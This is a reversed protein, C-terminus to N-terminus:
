PTRDEPRPLACFLYKLADAVTESRDKGLHSATADLLALSAEDLELTM